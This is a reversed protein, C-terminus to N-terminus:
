QRGVHTRYSVSGHSVAYGVTAITRVFIQIFNEVRYYMTIWVLVRWRLQLIAIEGNLKPVARTWFYLQSSSLYGSLQSIGPQHRDLMLGKGINWTYVRSMFVMTNHQWPFRRWAVYRTITCPALRKHGYWWRIMYVLWYWLTMVYSYFGTFCLCLPVCYDGDFTALSLEAMLALLPWLQIPLRLPCGNLCAYFAAM